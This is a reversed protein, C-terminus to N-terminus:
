PCKSQYNMFLQRGLRFESPTTGTYKKFAANFVSKSNFGCDYAIDIISSDGYEPDSLLNKAEEIRYTNILDYFSMGLEENLVQSIYRSPISIEKAFDPLNITSSLFPKGTNM